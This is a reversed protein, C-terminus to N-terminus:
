LLTAKPAVNQLPQGFWPETGNVWFPNWQPDSCASAVPGHRDNYSSEGCSYGKPCKLTDLDNFPHYFEKVDKM